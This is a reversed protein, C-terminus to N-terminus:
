KESGVAICDVRYASPDASLAEERKSHCKIYYDATNVFNNGLM